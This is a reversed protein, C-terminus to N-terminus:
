VKALARGLNVSGVRKGGVDGNGKGAVVDVMVCACTLSEAKRGQVRDVSDSGPASVSERMGAAFDEQFGADVDDGELPGLRRLQGGEGVLVM